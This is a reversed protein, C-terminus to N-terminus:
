ERALNNQTESPIVKVFAVLNRESLRALNVRLNGSFEWPWSRSRVVVEASGCPHCLNLWSKISYDQLYTVEKARATKKEYSRIRDPLDYVDIRYDVSVARTALELQNLVLLAVTASDRWQGYTRMLPSYVLVSIFLLCSTAAVGIIPTRYPLGSNSNDSLSKRPGRLVSLLSRCNHVMSYALLASFPIAPIYMSRHSFTMTGVFVLLPLLLWVLLYHVVAKGRPNAGSANWEVCGRVCVLVFGAALAAVMWSWWNNLPDDQLRFVDVAYILDAIYGQVINVAYIMTEHHPRPEIGLYGGIGRLVRTRWVLYVLTIAVYPAAGHCASFFRRRFDPPEAFLLVQAFVLVPLIVAIEKAGLALVYSLASFFILLRKQRAGGRLKLFLALSLLLFLAALVDQRRDTAPVSEILIPHLAFIFGGLGAFWVDRDSLEFLALVALSAVLANLVLNTLQFGWPSLHWIAYDLSYSLAILPRYFKAIDVFGTGAMLPESLLRVIDSFSQVRSTEILTLTDTGSFFYDLISHYTLCSVAFVVLM